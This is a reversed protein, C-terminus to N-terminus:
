PVGSRTAVAALWPLAGPAPLDLIAGEAARRAEERLLGAVLDRVQPTWARSLGSPHPLVLVDTSGTDAWAYPAVDHVGLARAVRKGLVIARRGWLATGLCAGADRMQRVKVRPGPWTPLLNVCKFLFGFRYPELGALRALFLGSRGGLLPTMPDSTRSPAEGVVVTQWPPAALVRLRAM